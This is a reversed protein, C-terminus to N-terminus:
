TISNNDTTAHKIKLPCQWQKDNKRGSYQFTESANGFDELMPNVSGSFTIDRKRVINKMKDYAPTERLKEFQEHPNFVLVPYKFRRSPRSSGAHLGIIYFAEEKISFSFTSANPDPSVRKDFFYNDADLDAIAQLRNWLFTDFMDENIEVPGKFIIAVSSYLNNSARYDDVFAYLFQLIQDDNYPCALHDAVFCTVKDRSVAERAAVCPFSRNRLHSFYEEIIIQDGMLVPFQEAQM